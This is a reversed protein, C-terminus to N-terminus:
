KEKSVYDIIKSNFKQSNIIQTKIPLYYLPVDVLSHLRVFDKETTLVINKKGSLQNFQTAIRQLDVTSFHHHDSFKLGVFNCKKESLFAYLADTNAIGTVLLVQYDKLQTVSISDGANIVSDHYAITSFFIDKQFYKRIKNKVRAQEEETINQPCKTVVVVEARRIQKRCERLNGTPLLFDNTFLNDYATLVINFGATIHRHQYADDLLVGDIKHNAFLKEVAEVRREGVAVMVKPFKHHIQFPEDGIQEPTADTGALLYGKTKRKYGRSVVAVSYQNQLLRILYEIQPTKGTGGVSLNGVNIIPLDFSKSPLIQRDFFVNRLETIIGYIISFPFLIFRLIKM